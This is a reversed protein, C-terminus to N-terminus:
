ASRSLLGSRKPECVDCCNGRGEGKWSGRSNSRRGFLNALLVGADHGASYEPGCEAGRGDGRDADTHVAGVRVLRGELSEVLMAARHFVPALLPEVRVGRCAALTLIGVDLRVLGGGSM